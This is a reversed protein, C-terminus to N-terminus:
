KVNFIDQQLLTKNDNGWGGNSAFTLVRELIRSRVMINRKEEDNDHWGVCMSLANSNVPETNRKYYNTHTM